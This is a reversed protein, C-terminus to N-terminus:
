FLNNKERYFELPMEKKLRMFEENFIKYLNQKL